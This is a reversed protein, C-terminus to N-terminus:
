CPVIYEVTHDFIDLANGYGTDIGQNGSITDVAGDDACTTDNGYLMDDGVGGDIMDAGMGGYVIDNGSM